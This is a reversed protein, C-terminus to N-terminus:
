GAADEIVEIEGDPLEELLRGCGDCYHIVWEQTYGQPPTIGDREQRIEGCGKHRLRRRTEWPFPQRPPEQTTLRM